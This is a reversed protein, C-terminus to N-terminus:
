RYLDDIAGAYEKMVVNRKLKLTPTLEGGAETFDTTLLEFRKIAEAQSVAENAYNVAKQIEERLRDDHLLDAMPTGVPIGAETIWQGLSEADLTVLAGIYPREDGVVLCQSVLPHARVRDELVTPAVNKGAATVILEKKRGTIRLFGDDDLEGIDGTKFWGDETFTEATAEENNWYGPFVLDGKMLIEGDDAIRIGNGPVPHGVTGVRQNNPFNVTGGATTETLGYGELVNVGIGRFFHGLRAGLPAGGSVAYAVRGGMAERIKVYVLRDFVAHEARLAYGVHGTELAESYRIAVHEAADFIRGKGEAHAKHKASNYLKEFVRPVSLVLHPRFAALDPQLNKINPTHGLRVQRNLAGLEIVQALSHALPLFLLTSHSKDFVVDMGAPMLNGVYSLFNRHLLKCGKPRGTTGSTYIIMALDDSNRATRRAELDDPAFGLGAEVLRPLDGNDIVWTTVSHGMRTAALEVLAAHEPTEVFVAKVGADSLIWWVQEASSTEYIPVLVGGATLIACEILTWEYRTRAIVAVRDGPEIGSRVLGSALERVEALFKATTVPQWEGDVLRSLAEHDPASRELEVIPDTISMDDPVSYLPPVIYERM